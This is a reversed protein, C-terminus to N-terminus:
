SNHFQSSRLRQHAEEFILHGHMTRGLMQFIQVSEVRKKDRRKLPQQKWASVFQKGFRVIWWQLKHYSVTPNWAPCLALRDCDTRETTASPNTLRWLTYCGRSDMMVFVFTIAPRKKFMLCVFKTRAGSNHSSLSPRGYEPGFAM